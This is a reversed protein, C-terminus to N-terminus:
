ILNEKIKAFAKRRKEQNPLHYILRALLTISPKRLCEAGTYIILHLKEIQKDYFQRLIPFPM